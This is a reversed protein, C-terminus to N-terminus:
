SCSNKGACSHKEETAACSAKGESAACSNKGSCTNKEEIVPPTLSGGMQECKAASRVYKWEKPDYDMKSLGACAHSGDAAGCDNKGAKAVGYCKEAAFASSTVGAAVIGALVAGFLAKKEMIKELTQTFIFVSSRKQRANV